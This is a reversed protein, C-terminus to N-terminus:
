AREVTAECLHSTRPGATSSPGGFMRLERVEGKGALIARVRDALDEGVAM